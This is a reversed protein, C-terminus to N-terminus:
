MKWLVLLRVLESVDNASISCFFNLWSSNMMFELPFNFFKLRDFYRFISTFDTEGESLLSPAKFTQASFCSLLPLLLDDESELLDTSEISCDIMILPSCFESLWVFEYKPGNLKRFSSRGVPTAGVSLKLFRFIIRGCSFLGSGSLFRLVRMFAPIGEDWKQHFKGKIWMNKDHSRKM